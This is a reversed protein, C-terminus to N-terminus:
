STFAPSCTFSCTVRCTWGGYDKYCRWRFFRRGDFPRKPADGLWANWDITTESADPPIPYVWAGSDTNRDWVAEITDVDGLRGSDWIEKAKAYLIASVRQSGIPASGSTEEPGRRDHCLWGRRHAVHAERLLRGQGGAAAEVVLRRHWHDPTAVLVADIDKRDLIRRYERTTDINKSLIERASDHRCDYLDAAAVCEM